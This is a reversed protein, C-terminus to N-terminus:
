SIFGWTGRFIHNTLIFKESGVKEAIELKIGVCFIQGFERGNERM